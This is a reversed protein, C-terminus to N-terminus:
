RPPLNGLTLLQRVLQIFTVALLPLCSSNEDWGNHEVFSRVKSDGTVNVDRDNDNGGDKISSPTASCHKRCDRIEKLMM